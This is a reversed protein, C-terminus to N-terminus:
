WWRDWWGGRLSIQTWNEGWSTYPKPNVFRVYLAKPLWMSATGVGVGGYEFDVSWQKRFLSFTADWFPLWKYKHFEYVRGWIPAPWAEEFGSFVLYDPSIKWGDCYEADTYSDYKVRYYGCPKGKFFELSEEDFGSQSSEFDLFDDEVLPIVSTEADFEEEVGNVVEVSAETRELYIYSIGLPLRHKLSLNSRM